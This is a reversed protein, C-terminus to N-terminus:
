GDATIDITRSDSEDARQHSKRVKMVQWSEGTSTVTWNALDFYVERVGTIRSIERALDEIQAVPFDSTDVKFLEGRIYVTRGTFSFELRSLDAANRVLVTRIERNVKYRSDEM